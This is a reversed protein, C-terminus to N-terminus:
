TFPNSRPNRGKVYKKVCNFAKKQGTTKIKKLFIIFIVLMVLGLQKQTSIYLPAWFLTKLAKLANWKLLPLSIIVGLDGFWQRILGKKNLNQGQIWKPKITPTQVQMQEGKSYWWWLGGWDKYVLINPPNPLCIEYGMSFIYHFWWIDDVETWM